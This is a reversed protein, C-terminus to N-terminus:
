TGALGFGRRIAALKLETEKWEREPDSGTVIGAGAFIRWRQGRWLGSRLAPSFSGDGRADFWGVPGAYWGRDMAEHARLFAQAEPRPRGCVAPTPHIRALIELVHRRGPLRAEIRSELHLIDPLELIDPDSVRVATALSSLREQIEEAVIAQERRDKRSSLLAQARARDATPDPHRDASGAVATATFRTGRLDALLEPSSGLFATDADPQVLYTGPGPVHVRLRALAELPSLRSPVAVSRALVVKRLRGAGIDRLADEVHGQWRAREEVPDPSSGVADPAQEGGEGEDGGELLSRRLELLGRRLSRAEGDGGAGDADGPGPPADAVTHALLATTGAARRIEWRPLVFHAAGFHDWLDAEADGYSFGGYFRPELAAREERGDGAAAGAAGGGAGLAEEVDRRVSHFRHPGDASLRLVAGSHVAWGDRGRWAGRVASAGSALWAEPRWSATPFPVAATLIRGTRHLHVDAQPEGRVVAHKAHEAM